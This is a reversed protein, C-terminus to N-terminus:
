AAARRVRAYMEFWPAGDAHGRGLARLLTKLAREEVAAWRRTWEDAIPVLADGHLHQVDFGTQELLQTLSDPTFGHRYPFGLLNNHALVARAVPAAPTDLAKRVTAYFGGNPVRIALIGGEGLRAHAALATARPDPLQDFCNWIAIADYRKTSAVADLGGITVSFGRARALETARANVDVGEFHWGADSAAGLFAGVYSGVELGSGTRGRVSTLREAQARYADRQTDYLADLAEQDVAENRYTATLEFARERPNRYVLGCKDCRVVRLPPHQSFAVRDVLREPPIDPALRATHFEWLAEIEARIDEPGALETTEAGDCVPCRTLEYAPSIM